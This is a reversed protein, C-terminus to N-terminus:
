VQLQLPNALRGPTKNALIKAYVPQRDREAPQLQRAPTNKAIDLNQAAHARSQGHNAM